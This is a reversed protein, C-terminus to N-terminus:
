PLWKVDMTFVIESTSSALRITTPYDSGDTPMFDKVVFYYGGLIEDTGFTEYDKLWLIYEYNLQSFTWPFSTTFKLPLNSKIVDTYTGTSLFDTGADDSLNIYLDPGNSPDWGSGDDRTLPYSLLTISNIQLKTPADKVSISKTIKSTGGPGTATLTINYTGGSNYIISPNQSSSKLGNGFDWSYSTAGITSNTFNIKCPAMGTLPDFSFDADPKAISTVNITITKKDNNVDNSATLTVTYTGNNRYTHTENEYTSTTGDGFDWYYKTAHQSKNSFTVLFPATGFTSSVSFDAIAQKQPEKEKSCSTFIAMIMGIAAISLNKFKMKKTTKNCLFLSFFM